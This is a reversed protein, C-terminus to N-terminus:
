QRALASGDYLAATGSGNVLGGGHIWFMVPANKSGAPAFVNLTLCDESMPLAGVGNDRANYTQQCIAGYDKAARAGSWSKTPQPPRWRLEAVPPAAYPIGKFSVVGNDLVGQLVGTGIRVQSPDAAGASFSALLSAALVAAIAGTNRDLM